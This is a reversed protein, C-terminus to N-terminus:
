KKEPPPPPPPAKELVVRRGYWREPIAGPKDGDYVAVLEWIGDAGLRASVNVKGKYGHARIEDALATGYIMLTNPLLETNIRGGESSGDVGSTESNLRV